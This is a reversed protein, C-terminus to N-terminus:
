ERWKRKYESGEASISTWMRLPPIYITQCNEYKHRLSTLTDAEERDEERDQVYCPIDRVVIDGAVVAVRHTDLDAAVDSCSDVM